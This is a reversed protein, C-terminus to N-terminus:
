CNSDGENASCDFDNDVPEKHIGEGSCVINSDGILIACGTHQENTNTVYHVVEFGDKLCQEANLEKTNDNDVYYNDNICAYDDCNLETGLTCVGGCDTEVEGDDILNNYCSQTATICTMGESLDCSFSNCTKGTVSDTYTLGQCEATANIDMININWTIGATKRNLQEEFSYFEPSTIEDILDKIIAQNVVRITYEECTLGKEFNGQDEDGCKEVTCLSGDEAVNRKNSYSSDYVVFLQESEDGYGNFFRWTNSSGGELKGVNTRACPLRTVQTKDDNIYFEDPCDGSFHENCFDSAEDGTLELKNSVISLFASRWDYKAYCRRGYDKTQGCTTLAIMFKGYRSSLYNKIAYDIWPDDEDGYEGQVFDKALVYMKLLENFDKVKITTTFTYNIIKNDNVSYSITQEVLNKPIFAIELYWGPSYSNEITLSDDYYFNTIKAEYNICDTPPINTNLEHLRSCVNDDAKNFYTNLYKELTGIIEDITPVCVKDYNRWYPFTDEPIFDQTKFLNNNSDLYEPIVSSKTSYFGCGVDNNIIGGRSGTMFSAYDTAYTREQDELYKIQESSGISEGVYQKITSTRGVTSDLYFVGGIALGIMMIQAFMILYEEAGKKNM